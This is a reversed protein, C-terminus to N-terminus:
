LRNKHIVFDISYIDNSQILFVSCLKHHQKSVAPRMWSLRDYFFTSIIVKKIFRGDFRTTSFLYRCKRACIYIHNKTWITINLCLCRIFKSKNKMYKISLVEIKEISVMVIHVEKMCFFFVHRCLIHGM